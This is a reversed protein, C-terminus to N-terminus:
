KLNKRAFRLVMGFSVLQLMTLGVAIGNVLHMSFSFQAALIAVSLIMARIPREAPTIVGMQRIGESGLRARAYEQLAAILWLAVVWTISAGLRYFAVAWLAESIRNAVSQLTYGFKSEKSQLIVLASAVGDCFLSLLLLLVIWWQPSFLATAAALALGFFTVFIPSIWVLGPARAIRYSVRLWGGVIGDVSDGGHEIRWKSTFDPFNMSM